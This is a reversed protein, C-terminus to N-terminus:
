PASKVFKMARRRLLGFYVLMSLLAALVGRSRGPETGDIDLTNNDVIAPAVAAVSCGCLAGGIPNACRGPQCKRLGDSGQACCQGGTCDANTSCIDTCSGTELDCQGCPCQSDAYCDVCRSGNCLKGDPCKDPCGPTCDHITTDCHGGEGCQSDETCRVCKANTVTEDPHSCFPMETVQAIPTMGDMGLVLERGCSKCTPGCHRDDKCPKCSGSNCYKGDGCQYDYHCEACVQGLLCYPRKPDVSKCDVCDKKGCNNDTNCSPIADVCRQNARDCKQGNPCDNSTDCISCVKLTPKDPDPAILHPAAPCCLDPTTCVHQVCLQGVSCDKSDRCQVCTSDMPDVPSPICYPTGGGCPQCTKGCFQDGICPSCVAAANCYYGPDCGTASPAQGTVDAYTRPCQRCASLM